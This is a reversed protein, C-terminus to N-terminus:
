FSRFQPSFKKKIEKEAERLGNKISIIGSNVKKIKQIKKSKKKPIKESPNPLFLIQSYFNKREKKAWRM